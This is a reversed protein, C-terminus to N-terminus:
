NTETQHESHNTGRFGLRIVVSYIGFLILLGVAIKPQLLALGAALVSVIVAPGYRLAVKPSTTSVGQKQIVWWILEKGLTMALIGISYLMVAVKSDPFHGLLKTLFPM